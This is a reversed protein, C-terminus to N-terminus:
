ERTYTLPDTEDFSPVRQFIRLLRNGQCVICGPEFASCRPGYVKRVIAQARKFRRARIHRVKM